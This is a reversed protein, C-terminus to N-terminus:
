SPCSEYDCTAVGLQQLIDVGKQLMYAAVTGEHTGIYAGIM